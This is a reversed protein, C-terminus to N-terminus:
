RRVASGARLEAMTQEYEEVSEWDDTRALVRDGRIDAHWRRWFVRMRLEHGGTLDHYGLSLDSWQAAGAAPFTVAQHGQSCSEIAEIDDPSQFGAVYQALIYERVREHREEGPPEGKPAALWVTVETETPSVPWFLRISNGHPFLVNPYILFNGAFSRIDRAMEGYRNVAERRFRSVHASEGHGNHHGNHGNSSAANTRTSSMHGRGHGLDFGFSTRIDDRTSTGFEGFRGHRVSTAYQIFTAHTPGFHYSDVTNEVLVKWTGKINLKMSGPIIQIEGDENGNRDIFDDLWLKVDDLYTVLDEIDPNWSLFVFGRYIEVRPPQELAREARDFFESYQGEDPVGILQGETNFTWAHYFCQFVRANGQDTRCIVAGRHPCVNLFVRVQGDRGRAMFVPRGNVPRRVYDGPNSVESEHGVYQWTRDFVRERELQYIDPSTMTSRHVRFIGRKRDDIILDKLDPM